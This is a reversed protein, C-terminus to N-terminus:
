KWTSIHPFSFALWTEIYWLTDDCLINVCSVIVYSRQDHSICTVFKYLSFYQLVNSEGLYWLDRIEKFKKHHKLSIQVCYHTYINGELLHTSANQKSFHLGNSLRFFFTKFHAGFLCFILILSTKSFFCKKKIQQYYKKKVPNRYMFSQSLTQCISFQILICCFHKEPSLIHRTFWKFFPVVEVYLYTRLVISCRATFCQNHDSSYGKM